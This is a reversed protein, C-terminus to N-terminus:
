AAEGPCGQPASGCSAVQASGPQDPKAAMRRSVALLAPEAFRFGEIEQPEGEDAATAAPAVKQELPFGPPVAHPGLELFDFLLQPPLLVRRDGFLPFPERLHDSAEEGVVGHGGIERREALEPM